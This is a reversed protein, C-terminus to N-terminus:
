LCLFAGHDLARQLTEAPVPALGSVRQLDASDRQPALHLLVPKARLRQNRAGAAEVCIENQLRANRFSVSRVPTGFAMLLCSGIEPTRLAAGRTAQGKGGVSSLVTGKMGSFMPASFRGPRGSSAIFGMRISTMPSSSDLLACARVYASYLTNEARAWCVCCTRLARTTSRRSLRLPVHSLTAQATVTASTGEPETRVRAHPGCAYAAILRVTSRSPSRMRRRAAQALSREPPEITVFPAM